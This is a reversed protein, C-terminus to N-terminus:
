SAPGRGTLKRLGTVTARAPNETKALGYADRSIVMIKQMELSLYGSLGIFKM